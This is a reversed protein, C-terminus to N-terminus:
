GSSTQMHHRGQICADLGGGRSMLSLPEGSGSGTRHARGVPRVCHRQLQQACPKAGGHAGARKLSESYQHSHRTTRAPHPDHSCQRGQLAACSLGFRGLGRAGKRKQTIGKVAGAGGHGAGGSPPQRRRPPACSSHNSFQARTSNQDTAHSGAGPRTRCGICVQFGRCLVAPQLRAQQTVAVLSDHRQAVDAEPWGAAQPLMCPRDLM